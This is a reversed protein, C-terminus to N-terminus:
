TPTQEAKKLSRSYFYVSLGGALASTVLFLTGAVSDPVQTGLLRCAIKVLGTLALSLMVGQGIAAVLKWSKSANTM